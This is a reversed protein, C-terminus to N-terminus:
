ENGKNTLIYFYIIGVASVSIFIDALNFVPFFGLNIFDIVAGLRIRDILNGITGSIFFLWVFNFKIHQKKLGYFVMGLVLFSIVVVLNLQVPLSFAIGRNLFLYQSFFHLVLLKSAQDLVVLGLCFGLFKNKKIAKMFNM